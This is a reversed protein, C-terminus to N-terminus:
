AKLKKLMLLLVQDQPDIGFQKFVKEADERTETGTDLMLLEDPLEALSNVRIKLLKGVGKPHNNLGLLLSQKLLGKYYMYKDETYKRITTFIEQEPALKNNWNHSFNLTNM